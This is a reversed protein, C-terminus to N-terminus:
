RLYLPHICFSNQVGGGGGGGGGGGCDPPSTDSQLTVPVNKECSVAIHALKLIKGNDPLILTGFLFSRAAPLSFIREVIGADPVPLM